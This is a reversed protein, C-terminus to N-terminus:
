KEAPFFRYGPHQYYSGAGMCNPCDAMRMRPGNKFYNTMKEDYVKRAKECLDPDLKKCIECKEVMAHHNMWLTFSAKTMLLNVDQKTQGTGQCNPCIIKEKVSPKQKPKILIVLVGLLSILIGITLIIKGM